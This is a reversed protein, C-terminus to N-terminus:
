VDIFRVRELFDTGFEGIRQLASFNLSAAHILSPGSLIAESLIAVLGAAGLGAKLKELFRVVSVAKSDMAKGERSEGKAAPPVM